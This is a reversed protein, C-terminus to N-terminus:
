AAMLLSRRSGTFLRGEDLCDCLERYVKRLNDRSYDGRVARLLRQSLTGRELIFDVIDRWAPDTMPLDEGCAALLEQWVKAANVPNSTLGLARLYGSHEIRARKGLRTCNKLVADLEVAPITAVPQGDDRAKRLASYLRKVAQIIATAVAIDAQPCEQTDTLRIEIANRDFRPIGGRSNLWEHQLIGDPDAGAIERYMPQFIENRYALESTVSEPIVGGTITPYADANDRYVQLRFDAYGSDKGDAIPSSAALAPILPLVLRVAEHLCAFEEDNAFPLNIHMSQLNAWGHTNCHFIRQYADYISTDGHQWAKAECTPDMWPHMAGPMLRANWQHLSQNMQRVAGRLQRHLSDLDATPVPNKLEIVHRFFENSWALEGCPMDNLVQGDVQLIRDALPLCDLGDRDVVVYELEIGYASFAPLPAPRNAQVAADAEHQENM